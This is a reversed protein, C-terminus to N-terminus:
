LILMQVVHLEDPCWVLFVHGGHVPVIQMIICEAAWVLQMTNQVQQRAMDQQLRREFAIMGGASVTFDENALYQNLSNLKKHYAFLLSLTLIKSFKTRTRRVFLTCIVQETYTDNSVENNAM